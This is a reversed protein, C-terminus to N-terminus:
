RRRAAAPPALCRAAPLRLNAAPAAPRAVEATPARTDFGVVFPPETSVPRGRALLTRPFCGTASTEREALAPYGDLDIDPTQALILDVARNLNVGGHKRLHPQTVHRMENNVLTAWLAAVGDM